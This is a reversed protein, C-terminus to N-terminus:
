IHGKGQLGRGVLAVQGGVDCAPVQGEGKGVIDLKDCICALEGELDVMREIGITAIMQVKAFNGKKKM